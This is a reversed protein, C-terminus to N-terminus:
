QTNRHVYPNLTHTCVKIKDLPVNLEKAALEKDKLSKKGNEAM